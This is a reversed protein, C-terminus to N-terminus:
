IKNKRLVETLNRSMFVKNLQALMVHVGDCEMFVSNKMQTQPALRNEKGKYIQRETVFAFSIYFYKGFINSSRKM